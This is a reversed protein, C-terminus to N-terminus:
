LKKLRSRGNKFIRYRNRTQLRLISQHCVDKRITRFDINESILCIEPIGLIFPATHVTHDEAARSFTGGHPFRQSLPDTSSKCLNQLSYRNCWSQLVDIAQFKEEELYWKMHGEVASSTKWTGCLPLPRLWCM